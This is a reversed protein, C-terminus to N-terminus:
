YGDPIREEPPGLPGDDRELLSRVLTVLAWLIAALAVVAVVAFVLLRGM